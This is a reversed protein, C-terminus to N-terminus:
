EILRKIRGELNREDIEEGEIFKFHDLFADVEELLSILGDDLPVVIGKQCESAEKIAGEKDSFVKTYGMKNTVLTVSGNFDDIVVYNM